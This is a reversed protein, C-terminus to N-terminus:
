KRVSPLKEEVEKVQTAVVKGDVVEEVITKIKRCRNLEKQLEEEDVTLSSIDEGELLRRYTAIEMELRVKINLLLDYEQTQRGMDVRIQQLQAEMSGILGQIQALKAAYQANINELTANLANKKSLESQLEIELGQITRQLETVTTRTKELETTSTVMQVNVSEVQTDYYDKADKRIKDVVGECQVRMDALIKGLDVSPAADVQVNVSGGAQKRLVGIDDEHNKKLYALEEQLSEIQHELDGRTLSLEDIVKRLGMIDKEVGFRLAQETEFKIRFDDSALKSNDIELLIRTNDLTADYIKKKLQDITQYYDKYDVEVIGSRKGYWEKIRLELNGNASELSRVKDLYSALRDNLNQMTQKENGALLVDSNTTIQFGSGLSGGFGSASSIRTGYGGAGGYVSGAYRTSTGYSGDSWSPLRQSSNTRRVTTVSYSM